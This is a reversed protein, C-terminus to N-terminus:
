AAATLCQAKAPNKTVQSSVFLLLKEALNQYEDKQKKNQQEPKETLSRICLVILTQFILLALAQMVVASIAQWAMPSAESQEAYLAKLEDNVLNLEANIDDIRGAWGVRTQSNANYTILSASLRQQDALLQQERKAYLAPSSKAEQYQQIAPASVEYLPGTLVLASAILALLSKGLSHHSWLWLAAGELMISWLVGYDGAYRGWFEIAHAQMIVVGGILLLLAPAKKIVNNM